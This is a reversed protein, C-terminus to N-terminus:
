KSISNLYNEFSNLFLDMEDSNIFGIKKYISTSPIQFLHDCKVISDVRLNNESNKYITENYIFRSNEKSKNTNSSIVMGFYDVPVSNGDDDIVVFLHNNVNNTEDTIDQAEAAVVIDGIGYKM